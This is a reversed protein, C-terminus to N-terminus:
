RAKKVAWWSGGCAFRDLQAIAQEAQTDNPMDIMAFGQSRGSNDQPMKISAVTGFREFAKLVTSESTQATINGVYIKM